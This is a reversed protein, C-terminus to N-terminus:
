PLIAAYVVKGTEDFVIYSCNPFEKKPIASYNEKILEYDYELFNGMSPFATMM